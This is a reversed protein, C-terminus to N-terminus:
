NDNDAHGGLSVQWVPICACSFAQYGVSHLINGDQVKECCIVACLVPLSSSCLQGALQAHNMSCIRLLLRLEKCCAFCPFTTKTRPGLRLAAKTGSSGTESLWGHVIGVVGHCVVLVVELMRQFYGSIGSCVNELTDAFLCALTSASQGGVRFVCTCLVCVASM